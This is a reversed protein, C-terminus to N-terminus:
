FKFFKGIQQVSIKKTGIALDDSPSVLSLKSQCATAVTVM